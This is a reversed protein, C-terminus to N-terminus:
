IARLERRALYVNALAFLTFLQAANKALGRYRVKSYGWLHKILGFPHEIRARTRNSKRNFSRDAGTRKRGRKAKRLVRWQIGEAQADQQRQADVYAKDGYLVEEDGHLCEDMMQSDHVSASPVVVTHVRGQLDSGGHAKLGFHWTTGKKTSGMEPDRAQDRNKTSTPAALITADVITGERVILGRESLYQGTREFLVETLRHRELFHRFKCITTEDPIADLGVGAFRRMTEVDYLSDEMGPDSLGYWQQMFYIRLMTEAPIPRRGQGPKPYQPLIPRLLVDWPLVENMECLFREKRTTKKKYTYAEDSFSLQNM